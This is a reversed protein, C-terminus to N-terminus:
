QVTVSVEFTEAPPASQDWPQHYLLKLLGQGPAIAKFTLTMQGGAGVASSEAKFAPEGQLEVPAASDPAVEWTYGTTPNGALVVTFTEGAKVTIPKGADAQTLTQPVGGGCAALSTALLAFLLIFLIKKVM